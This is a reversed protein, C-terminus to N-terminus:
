NTKMEAIKEKLQAYGVAGFVVQDGIVYSPTGTIGLGDAMKYVEQIAEMIYPKETEAKLAVPDIGFEMALAAASEGSKRGRQQLLKTHFEAAKEPMLQSFALSVRHTALSAEGLVPFEKLVFRVDKDEELFKNMDSLARQCFGCNYDYFEVVTIPANPDGIEIQHESDYIAKKMEALTQKQLAATEAQRRAELAQQVELMIEPNKLLYERIIVEVEAKETEDLAYTNSVGIALLFVCAAFFQRGIGFFKSM